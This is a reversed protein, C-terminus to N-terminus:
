EPREQLSSFDVDKVPIVEWESPVSWESKGDWVILNILYNGERHIIAYADERM